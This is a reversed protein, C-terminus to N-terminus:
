STRGILARKQRLYDMYNVYPVTPPVLHDLHPVYGGQEVLGRVRDLEAAIAQPGRAVAEKDLGGRLLLERGYKKRWQVPDAGAHVELPFMVNVGVELWCPVLEAPNGDCDVMSLACGRRRAADMVRRYGPMFFQRFQAPSVLPGNRSAMDEWWQVQDVPLDPPMREIQRACLEAWHGIMEEILGPHDYLALSLNEIGMWNRLQGYFGLLSVTVMRGEQVGHRVRELDADPFFRTPDDFRFRERYAAWDEATEVPFKVFHPISSEDAEHPFKEILAGRSDVMVVVHGRTEVIREPVAPNLHTRATLTVGSTDFGFYEELKPNFMDVEDDKTLKANFWEDTLTRPLGEGLWRRITQPWWGFEV